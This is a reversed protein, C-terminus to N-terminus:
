VRNQWYGPLRHLEAIAIIRIETEAVQFIVGYPFRNVLCRRSNKSLLTWANPYAIIRAITVYIEEAFEMGLGTRCEEYYRISDDLEQEANPHFSFNM